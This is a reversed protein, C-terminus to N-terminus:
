EILPRQEQSGLKTVGNVRMMPLVYESCRFDRGFIGKWSIAVREADAADQKGKMGRYSGGTSNEFSVIDPAEDCDLTGVEFSCSVSFSLFPSPM